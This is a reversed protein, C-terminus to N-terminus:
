FTSGTKRKYVQLIYKVTHVYRKIKVFYATLSYSKNFTMVGDGRKRSRRVVKAKIKKALQFNINELIIERM